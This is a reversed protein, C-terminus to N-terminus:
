VRCGNQDILRAYSLRCFQGGDQFLSGWKTFSFICTGVKVFNGSSELTCGFYELRLIFLCEQVSDTLIEGLLM